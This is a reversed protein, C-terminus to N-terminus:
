EEDPPIYVDDYTGSALEAQAMSKISEHRQQDRKRKYDLLDKLYIRRHTGVKHFQVEDQKLLQVLFPRSVGLIDAAQQTTLEQMIPVISVAQGAEMYRLIKILLKYVAEPLERVQGGPGVLSATPQQQMLKHLERIQYEQSEPLLVPEMTAM